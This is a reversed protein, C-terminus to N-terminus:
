FSPKKGNSQSRSHRLVYLGILNLALVEVIIWLVRAGEIIMWTMIGMSVLMLVIFTFVAVGNVQSKKKMDFSFDMGTPKIVM